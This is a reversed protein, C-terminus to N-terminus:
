KRARLVRGGTTPAAAPQKTRSGGTAASAAKKGATAMRGVFGKKAPAAVAKKKTVITTAASSDSASSGNSARGKGARAVAATSASPPAVRKGRGLGTATTTAAQRSPARAAAARTPKDAVMAALSATATATSNPAKVPSTPRALFSKQPSSPAKIPSRPLTRSNHSKPSLVTSPNLKARSPQRSAPGAKTPEAATKVRKKPMNLDEHHIDANEKDSFTSMENSTRKVGRSSVPRSPEVAQKQKPPVRPPPMSQATPLPPLDRKAPERAPKSYNEILDMINTDRLGRPIRNIRMELRSRLGQAHLAYQARLKRARETIELQLNDILAQKQAATVTTRKRTPSREPTRAPSKTKLVASRSPPPPFQTTM